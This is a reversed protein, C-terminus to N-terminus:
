HLFASQFNQKQDSRPNFLAVFPNIEMMDGIGLVVHEHGVAQDMVEGQRGLNLGPERGRARKRKILFLDGVIYELVPPIEELVRLVGTSMKLMWPPRCISTLMLALCM